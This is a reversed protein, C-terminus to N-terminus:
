SLPGSAWGIMLPVGEGPRVIAPKGPEVDVGFMRAFAQFDELWMNEPSFSHIIMAAGACGFRKAEIMAVATRHFLQYRLTLPPPNAIGLLECLYALRVLKGASASALWEGVTKDFSEAVKAEVGCAVVGINARVLTFIDTQSARQGGPLPTQWEPFAVLLETPGWGAREFQDAIESPWGGTSEWREAAAKASYGDRWQTEPKALLPRWDAASHTPVFIRSTM